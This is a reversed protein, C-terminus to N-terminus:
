SIDEVAAIPATRKVAEIGHDRQKESTYMESVGIVKKNPATLVFYFQKDASTKKVYREDKHANVKVSEIGKRCSQKSVYGESGLIVEGNEAILRFYFQKDKGTYIQFKSRTM